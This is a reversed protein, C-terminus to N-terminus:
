AGLVHGRFSMLAVCVYAPCCRCLSRWVLLGPFYRPSLCLLSLAPVTILPIKPLAQSSARFRVESRLYVIDPLPLAEVVWWSLLVLLNRM